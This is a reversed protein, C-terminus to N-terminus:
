GVRAVLSAWWKGSTFIRREEHERAVSLHIAGQTDHALHLFPEVVLKVVWPDEQVISWERLLKLQAFMGIGM